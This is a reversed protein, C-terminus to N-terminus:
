IERMGHAPLRMTEAADRLLLIRREKLLQVELEHV